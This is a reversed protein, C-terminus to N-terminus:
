YYSLSSKIQAKAIRYTQWVASWEEETMLSPKNQQTKIILQVARHMLEPAKKAIVKKATGKLLSIFAVNNETYGISELTIIGSDAMVELSKFPRNFYIRDAEKVPFAKKLERYNAKNVDVQNVIVKPAFKSKLQKYQRWHSTNINTKYTTYLYKGFKAIENWVLQGSQYKGQLSKEFKQIAQAPTSKQFTEIVRDKLVEQWDSEIKELTQIMIEDPHLSNKEDAVQDCFDSLHLPCNQIEFRHMNELLWTKYYTATKETFDDWDVYNVRMIFQRIRKVDPHDEPVHDYFPDRTNGSYIYLPAQTTPVDWYKEMQPIQEWNEYSIVIQDLADEKDERNKKRENIESELFSILNEKDQRSVSRDTSLEVQKMQRENFKRGDEDKPRVNSAMRFLNGDKMILYSQMEPLRHSMKAVHEATADGISGHGQDNEDAGQSTEIVFISKNPNHLSSFLPQKWNTVKKEKRESDSTSLHYDEPATVSYDVGEEKIFMDDDLIDKTM